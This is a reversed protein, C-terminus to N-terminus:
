FHPTQKEEEKSFNEIKEKFDEWSIEGEGAMKCLELFECKECQWNTPYDKLRPPVKNELLKKKLKEFWDLLEQAIKPDYDISFEKLEQTDKNVYLLIGKKIKFYHLYLQLQWIHEPHPQLKEFNLKGSISKVDLVYPEGDLSLIADARGSVLEQPPITIETARVLGLSFLPRLIMQHIFDGHEFIRIREPELPKGPAKKFKFFIARPCKGAESIYFQIRDRNKKEKEKELYFKNLLETLM